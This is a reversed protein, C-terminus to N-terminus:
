VHDILNTKLLDMNDELCMKLNMVILTCNTLMATMNKEGVTSNLWAFIYIEQCLLSKLFFLFHLTCARWTDPSPWGRPERVIVKDEHPLSVCLSSNYQHHNLQETTDSEWSGTSQLGDPEETQSIKWALVSSHTAVEKWLPDEWHTDSSSWGGPEYVIMKDECPLSLSLSSSLSFAPLCSSPLSLSLFLASLVLQRINRKTLANIRKSPNWEHSGIVDWLGWRWINVGTCQCNSNWLVSDLPTPVFIQDLTCMRWAETGVSYHAM